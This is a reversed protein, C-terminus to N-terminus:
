PPFCHLRFYRIYFIKDILSHCVYDFFPCFM